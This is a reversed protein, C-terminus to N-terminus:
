AQYVSYGLIQLSFTEGANAAASLARGRVLYTTTAVVGRPIGRGTADSVIEDGVTVAAGAECPKIGSINVRLIESAKPSVEILGLSNENAGCQDIQSDDAANEKVFRKGVLAASAKRTVSMGDKNELKM